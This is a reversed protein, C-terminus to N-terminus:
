LGFVAWWVIGLLASSGIVRMVPQRAAFVAVAALISLLLAGPDVVTLVPYHLSMPGAQWVGTERFITHVAFWVGLNLIVGVVAATIGTLAGALAKNGRLSEVYPAGLFIWLFCPVFTVWTTLAAALVAAAYPNLSGAERFAGMFGVFM